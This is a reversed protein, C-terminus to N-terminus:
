TYYKTFLNYQLIVKILRRGNETSLLDNSYTGNLDCMFSGVVGKGYLWQAYIPADFVSYLIDEAGKKIKSGYFGDITPLNEGDLGFHDYTSSLTLSSNKYNYDDFRPSSLEKRITQPM